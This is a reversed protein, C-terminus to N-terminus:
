LWKSSLATKFVLDRKPFLSKKEKREM